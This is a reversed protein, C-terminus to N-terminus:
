ERVRASRISGKNSIIAASDTTAHYQVAHQDLTNQIGEVKTEDIIGARKAQDFIKQAKEPQTVSTPSTIDSILKTLNQQIRKNTADPSDGDIKGAAVSNAIIKKKGEEITADTASGDRLRRAIDQGTAYNNDDYTQKTFQKMQTAAYNSSNVVDLAFRHMTQQDFMRKAEPNSLSDRLKERETQLAKVHDNLADQAQSGPLQRFDNTLKGSTLLDATTASNVEAENKLQQTALVNSEITSATRGLEAGFREVSAGVGAGFAEPTAGRDSFYPTGQGSPSVDAVPNYPVQPM